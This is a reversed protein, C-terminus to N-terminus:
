AATHAARRRRVHVRRLQMASAGALALAGAISVAIPIWFTGDSPEPTLPEPAGYSSYYQEEASSPGDTPYSMHYREQALPDAAAVAGTAGPALLACAVACLRATRRLRPTISM